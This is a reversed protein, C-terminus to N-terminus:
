FIQATKLEVNHKNFHGTLKLTNVHLKCAYKRPYFLLTDAPRGTQHPYQSHRTITTM